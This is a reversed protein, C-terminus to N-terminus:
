VEKFKEMLGQGESVLGEMEELHSELEGQLQERLAKLQKSTMSEVDHGLAKLEKIANQRNQEEVALAGVLKDKGKSLLSLAMNANNLRTKLEEVDSM